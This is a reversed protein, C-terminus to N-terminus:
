MSNSCFEVSSLDYCLIHYSNPLGDRKCCCGSTEMLAKIGPVKPHSQRDSGAFSICEDSQDSKKKDGWQRSKIRSTEQRYPSLPFLLCSSFRDESVRMVSELEWEPISKEKEIKNCTVSYATDHEPILISSKISHYYWQRSSSSGLRALHDATTM